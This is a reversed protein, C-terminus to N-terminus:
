HRRGRSVAVNVKTGPRVVKGPAKSQSVIRGRPVKSSYVHTIRGLKCNRAALLARARGVTKARLRPVTCRAAGVVYPGFHGSASYFSPTGCPAVVTVDVFFVFHPRASRSVPVSFDFTGNPRVLDGLIETHPRPLPSVSTPWIADFTYNPTTCGFNPYESRRDVNVRSFEDLTLSFELTSGPLVTQAPPSTASATGVAGGAVLLVLSSILASRRRLLM